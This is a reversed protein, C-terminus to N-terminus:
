KSNRFVMKFRFLFFVYGVLIQVHFPFESIVDSTAYGNRTMTVRLFYLFRLHRGYYSEFPFQVNEFNFSFQENLEVSGKEDLSKKQISSEEVNKEVSCQAVLEICIGEHPIIKNSTIKATVYGCVSDGNTYISNGSSKDKRENKLLEFQFQIAANGFSFM